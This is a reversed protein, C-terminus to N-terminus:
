ENKGKKNKISRFSGIRAYMNILENRSVGMDRATEDIENLLDVDMRISTTKTKVKKTNMM